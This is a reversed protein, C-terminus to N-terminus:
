YEISSIELNGALCNDILEQYPELTIENNLFKEYDTPSLINKICDNLSIQTNTNENSCFMLFIALLLVFFNKISFM